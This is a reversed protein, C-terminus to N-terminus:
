MEPQRSSWIAKMVITFRFSRREPEDPIGSIGLGPSGHNAGHRLSVLVIILSGM